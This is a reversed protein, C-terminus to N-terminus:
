EVGYKGLIKKYENSKIFKDFIEQLTKIDADSTDRNAAVWLQQSFIKLGKKLERKEVIKQASERRIFPAVVDQTIWVDDRDGALKKWNDFETYGPDFFADSGAGLLKKTETEPPSAALAGIRYKKLDALTTINVEPKLSFAHCNVTVILSIWKYLPERAETRTLPFILSNKEKQATQQAVPWSSWETKIKGDLGSQALAGSIVESFLGDYKGTSGQFNMTYPPIEGTVIKFPGSLTAASTASSLCLIFLNVLNKM